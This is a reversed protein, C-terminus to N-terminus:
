RGGDHSQTGYAPWVLRLLLTLPLPSVPQALTSGPSWLLSLPRCPVGLARPRGPLEDSGDALAARRKYNRTQSPLLSGLVM